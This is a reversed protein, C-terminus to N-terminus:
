DITTIELNKLEFSQWPHVSHGQYREDEFCVFWKLGDKNQNNVDITLSEGSTMKKRVHWEGIQSDCNKCNGKYDTKAFDWEIQVNQETVNTLRMVMYKAAFQGPVDTIQYSYEIQVNQDNSPYTYWVDLEDVYAEQASTQFSLIAIFAVLLNITRTKIGRSYVSIGQQNLSQLRKRKIDM